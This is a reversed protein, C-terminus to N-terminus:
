YNTADCIGTSVFNLGAKRETYFGSAGGVVWGWRVYIQNFM